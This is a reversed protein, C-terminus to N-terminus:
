GCTFFCTVLEQHAAGREAFGDLRGLQREEIHQGRVAAQRAGLDFQHALLVAFAEQLPRQRRQAPAVLEDQDVRRRREAQQREIRQRRGIRHQDRDLALVVRQFPSLWSRLV